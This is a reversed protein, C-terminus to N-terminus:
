EKQRKTTQASVTKGSQTNRQQLKLEVRIAPLEQIGSRILSETALLVLPGHVCGM